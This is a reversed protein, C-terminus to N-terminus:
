IYVAVSSWKGLTVKRQINSVRCLPKQRIHTTVSLIIESLAASSLSNKTSHGVFICEAFHWVSSLSRSELLAHMNLVYTNGGNVNKRECENVYTYVVTM